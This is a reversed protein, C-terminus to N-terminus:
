QTQTPRKLNVVCSFYLAWFYVNELTRPLDMQWGYESSFLPSLSHTLKSRGCHIWVYFIVKRKM